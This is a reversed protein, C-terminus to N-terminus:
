CCGTWRPARASSRPRTFSRWTPLAAGLRGSRCRRSRRAAPLRAHSGRPRRPPPPQTSRKRAQFSKRAYFTANPLTEFLNSLFDFMAGSPKRSTTVLLSPECDRAFHAAFEDEAVDALAEEDDPVVITADAERMNEITQTLGSPHPLRAPPCAAAACAARVKPVARPPPVLGLEHAKAVEAQRKVRAKKKTIQAHRWTLRM